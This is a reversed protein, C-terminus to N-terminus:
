GRVFLIRGDATIVCLQDGSAVLAEPRREGLDLTGSAGGARPDYRILRNDKGSRDTTAIWLGNAADALLPRASADVPIESAVRGREIRLIAARGTSLVWAGHRDAVLPSTTADLSIDRLPALRRWRHRERGDAADIEVLTGDHGIAWVRDGVVTVGDVRTLPVPKVTGAPGLRALGESAGCHKVWVGGSGAALGAATANEVPYRLPRRDVLRGSAADYRLLEGGCHVAHTLLAWVSGGAAAVAEPRGPVAFRAAVRHAGVDVAVLSGTFDSVWLSGGSLTADVPEGGIALVSVVHPRAPPPDRELGRAAVAVAVAVAVVAVARVAPALRLAPRPVYRRGSQEHRGMAGVLDDHLGRIFDDNM